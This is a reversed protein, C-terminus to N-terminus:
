QRLDLQPVSVHVAPYRAPNMPWGRGGRHRCANIFARFKGEDDRTALVPTGFDDITFYSGNNPLDGTLGIFQPHGLFFSSWENDALEPSVYSDTPIRYRVGADM